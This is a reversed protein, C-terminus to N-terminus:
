PWAVLGTAKALRVPHRPDGDKTKGLCFLPMRENGAIAILVGIREGMKPAAAAGWAVIVKFARGMAAAIARDNWPGVPDTTDGLGRPDTSRWAYLNVVELSDFYERQSFSICRRITADNKMADATSPNLMVWCVRRDGDGWTRTLSYRYRTCLSFEASGAQSPSINLALQETM